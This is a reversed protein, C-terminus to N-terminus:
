NTLEAAIANFRNIVADRVGRVSAAVGVILILGILVYEPAEIGSKGLLYEVM